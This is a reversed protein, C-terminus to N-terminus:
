SKQYNMEREGGRERRERPLKRVPANFNVDVGVKEVLRQVEKLNGDKAAHYLSRENEDQWSM